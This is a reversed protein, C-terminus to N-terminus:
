RDGAPLGREIGWSRRLPVNGSMVPRVPSRLFRAKMSAVSQNRAFAIQIANLAESYEAATAEGRECRQFYPTLNM